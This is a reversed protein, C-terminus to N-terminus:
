TRLFYRFLVMMNCFFYSLSCNMEDEGELRIM